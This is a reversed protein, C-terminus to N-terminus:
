LSRSAIIPRLNHLNLLYDMFEPPSATTEVFLDKVSLGPGAALHVDVRPLPGTAAKRNVRLRLLLSGMHPVARTVFM